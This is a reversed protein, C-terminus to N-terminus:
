GSCGGCQSIEVCAGVTKAEGNVGGIQGRMYGCNERQGQGYQLRRRSM